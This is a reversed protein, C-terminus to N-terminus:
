VLRYNVHGASVPMLVMDTSHRPHDLKLLRIIFARATETRQLPEAFLADCVMDDVQEIDVPKQVHLDMSDASDQVHVQALQDLQEMLAPMNTTIM